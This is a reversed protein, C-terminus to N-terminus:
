GFVRGLKEKAKDMFSGEGGILSTLSAVDFGGAPKNDKLKGMIFPVIVNGVSSAVQKSLGVKSTLSDIVQTTLGNVVPNGQMSASGNVLNLLSGVNGSSVEKMLGTQLTDKTTTIVKDTQSADLKFKSGLQNTLESKADSFIKDLM